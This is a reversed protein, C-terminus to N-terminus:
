VSRDINVSLENEEVNLGNKLKNNIAFMIWNHVRVHLLANFRM